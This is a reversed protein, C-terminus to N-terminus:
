PSSRAQLLAAAVRVWKEGDGQLTGPLPLSQQGVQVFTNWDPQLCLNRYLEYVRKLEAYEEMRHNAAATLHVTDIEHPLPIERLRVHFRLQNLATEMRRLRTATLAPIVLGDAPFYCAGRRVLDPIAYLMEALKEIVYKVLQNEPTDYRREVERCIFRHPNVDGTTRAKYTASWLVRGRVQGTYVVQKQETYRSLQQVIRGLHYTVFREVGGTHDMALLFYAEPLGVVQKVREKIDPAPAALTLGLLRRLITAEEIFLDTM